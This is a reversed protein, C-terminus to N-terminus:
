VGELAIGQVEFQVEGLPPTAVVEAREEVPERDIQMEQDSDQIEM